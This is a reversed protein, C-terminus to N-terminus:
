DDAFLVEVEAASAFPEGDAARRMTLRIYRAETTTWDVRQTERSNPWEGEAVTRWAYGADSVEITWAGIRGNDMDQRPTYVLGIIEQMRGLDIKLSHPPQIVSPSWPTHWFTNAAGDVVLSPGHGKAASSATVRVGAAQMRSPERFAKRLEWLPVEVRPDFGDSGAYALLSSRLQRAAPRSDMEEHLDASCVLLRGPPTHSDFPVACEFVLALSRGQFWDDVLRVIPEVPSATFVMPIPKSDRMIDWWQWDQHAATPFGALAPHDADNLLGVGHERQSSFTIRNWFVPKFTGFTDGAIREPEALLAVRGGARLREITEDNLSKVVLVDTQEPESPTERPYVWVTWTNNIKADRLRVRLEASFPGLFPARGRNLPVDISGIAHVGTEDVEVEFRGAALRVGTDTMLEWGCVDDIEGPGYHALDIQVDLTEDTHYIFSDMRSLLVTPGAFCRYAEATAYPKPEWFADLVGVPAVGQGTFDQLGLLQYGGIGPTRMVAEIEAKYLIIQFAGTAAVFEDTLGSLGSRALMDEMITHYDARLFGTFDAAHDPDPAATWQGIEHTIIPRDFREVFARYDLDNRPRDALRLGPYLQLRADQRIHFESAEATPWGAAVSYLRRADRGRWAQVLPEIKESGDVLKRGNDWMENGVCLFAFSPHNGYERLMRDGEAALWRELGNGDQLGPWTSVEPQLYLGLRDAAVFAAEPPCWSHFRVHNLGFDKISRFIVEWSAADTPPYGTDPFIACDLAGRMVTRRGNVLISTGDTTIERLGFTEAVEDRVVRDPDLLRVRLTYLSPDFENWLRADTPLGITVSFRGDHVRGEGITTTEVIGGGADLVAIDYGWGSGFREPAAVAVEVGISPTEAEPTIRVSDISQESDLAVLQLGGVIGNWNTQTQDSVAHADRGIPIILRNDVRIVIRRSGPAIGDPLRYRHPVGIGDRSGIEVGDIWVTTGWHPRELVLEVARGDWTQPVDLDRAYWAAGVYQRAPTLFIPSIFEEGEVYPLFRDDRMLRSGIGSSWQTDITPKDGFGQAQLSGPLAITDPYGHGASWGEDLGTDAPDIRFAWEGALDLTPRGDLAVLGRSLLAVILLPLVRRWFPFTSPYAPM